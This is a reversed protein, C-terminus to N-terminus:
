NVASRSLGSLYHYNLLLIHSQFHLLIHTMKRQHFVPLRKEAFSFYDIHRNVATHTMLRPSNLLIMSNGHCLLNHACSIGSKIISGQKKVISVEGTGEGSNTNEEPMRVYVLVQKWWIQLTCNVCFSNCKYNISFIHKSLNGFLAYIAILSFCMGM